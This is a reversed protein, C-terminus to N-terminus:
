FIIRRGVNRLSTIRFGRNKMQCFKKLHKSNRKEKRGTELYNNDAKKKKKRFCKRQQELKHFSTKYNRKERINEM